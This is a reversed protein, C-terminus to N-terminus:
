YYEELLSLEWCGCLYSVIAQLELELPYSLEEVVRLFGRVSGYM